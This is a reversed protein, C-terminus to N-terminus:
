NYLINEYHLHQVKIEIGLMSEYIHSRIREKFHVSNALVTEFFFYFYFYFDTAM